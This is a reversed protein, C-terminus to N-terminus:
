KLVQSAKVVTEQSNSLVYHELLGIELMVREYLERCGNANCFKELSDVVLGLVTRNYCAFMFNGLLVAFQKDQIKDTPLRFEVVTKGQVTPGLSILFIDNPNLTPTSM